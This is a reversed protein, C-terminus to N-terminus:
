SLSADLPQWSGFKHIWDMSGTKLTWGNYIIMSPRSCKKNALVKAWANLAKIDGHPPSVGLPFMIPCWPTTARWLLHRFRLGQWQLLGGDEEETSPGLGMFSATPTQTGEPQEPDAPGDPRYISWNEGGPLPAQHRNQEHYPKVRKVPLWVPGTPISVCAYGRGWTLLDAPGQWSGDGLLDSYLVQPYPPKSEKQRFINKLQLVSHNM